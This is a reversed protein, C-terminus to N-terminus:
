NGKMAEDKLAQVRKIEEPTHPTGATNLELYWDLLDVRNRLANIAFTLNIFPMNEMDKFYYGNFVPLENNVFALLTTLRQLGDVVVMQNTPIDGKKRSNNDFAPCNFYITLGSSGGRLVFEMYATQQAKTWVHGRQFDPNLELDYMDAYDDLTVQLFKFMPNVTYTVNSSRFKPITNLDLM